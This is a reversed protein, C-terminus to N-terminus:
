DASFRFRTGMRPAPFKPFHITRVSRNICAQFSSSGQRASAGMVAGTGAIAIDITVEKLAGGSRLEPIVCTRYIQNVHRNMVGTVEAATLRREGGGSSVDGLEVARNMADEYSSGAGDSGGSSGAGAGGGGARRKGRAAGKPPDPLMDASSEFQIEGREYLDRATEALAEDQGAQRTLLFIATGIALLGVIAGAVVMKFRGTVKEARETAIVARQHDAARKRERQEAFFDAFEEWADARRREGTDLNTVWHEENVEDLAIKAVLERGSFPGHDLGDVEVTWRAADHESIKQLLAGLDVEAAQVGKSPDVVEGRFSEHLSVRMGVSPNSSRDAASPRIPATPMPPPAISDLGADVELDLVPEGAPARGEAVLSLLAARVEAPTEFREAPDAALCALLVQELAVGADPYRESLSRPTEGPPELMLMSYLVAGIGYVDSLKTPSGGRRVEPAICTAEAGFIEAGREQVIVSGVGFDSILLRREDTVWIASPRIAAHAMKAHAFGLATCLHAVVNCADWLPLPAERRALVQSLPEGRIWQRAVFLGGGDLSGAGYTAVINGHKLLVAARCEKRLRRFAGESVLSAPLLRLSVATGTKADKARVVRGLADEAVTKEVVFRGVTSGAQM